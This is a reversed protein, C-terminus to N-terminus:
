KEFTPECVVKRRDRCQNLTGFNKNRYFACCLVFVVTVTCVKRAALNYARNLPVGCINRTVIEEFPKAPRLQRPRANFFINRRCYLSLNNLINNAGTYLSNFIYEFILRYKFGVIILKGFFFFFTASRLCFLFELRNNTNLRVSFFFLKNYINTNHSPLPPRITTCLNIIRIFIM